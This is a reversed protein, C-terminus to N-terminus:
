SVRRPLLPQGSPDSASQTGGQGSRSAQSRSARLIWQLVVWLAVGNLLLGGFVLSFDSEVNIMPVLLGLGCVSTLPHQGVNNVFRELTRYIVGVLFMGVLVGIEGFNTYFEVFLPFNVSTYGDNDNLYGYRHGFDQGLTKSPKNPWLVRPIAFGILSLYTEGGWYPVWRPTQRVVDALLDLNASRGIVARLGHLVAGQPGVEDVKNALLRLMLASRQPLPLADETYWAIRRYEIAVGRLSVIFMSGLLGLLVWRPRLRAGGVWIALIVTTLVLLV